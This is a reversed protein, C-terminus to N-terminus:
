RHANKEARGEENPRCGEEVCEEVSARCSKGTLAAMASESLTIHTSVHMPHSHLTTQLPTHMTSKMVVQTLLLAKSSDVREKEDKVKVEKVRGGAERGVIVKTKPSTVTNNQTNGHTHIGSKRTVRGDKVEKVGKVM